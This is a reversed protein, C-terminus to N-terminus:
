VEMDNNHMADQFEMDDIMANFDRNNELAYSFAKDTQDINTWLTAMFKPIARHFAAPIVPETSLTIDDPNYIYDFEYARSSDENDTLVFVSQRLDLYVYGKSDRVNRRQNYNIWKYVEYETGVLMVKAPMDYDIEYNAVLHRFDTPLAYTLDTSTLTGTVTKILFNWDRSNLISDIVQQALALRETDSLDDQEDTILRFEDIIEQGNKVSAM